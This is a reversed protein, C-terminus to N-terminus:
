KELEFGAKAYATLGDKLISVDEFGNSILWQAAMKCQKGTHDVVVIRSDKPLEPSLMSLYSFPMARSNPIYGLKYISTERIDVILYNNLAANLQEPEITSVEINKM